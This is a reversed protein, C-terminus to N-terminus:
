VTPPSGRSASGGSPQNLNNRDVYNFCCGIYHRSDRNNVHMSFGQLGGGGEGVGKNAKPCHLCTNVDIVVVRM